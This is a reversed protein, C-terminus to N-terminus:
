ATLACAQYAHPRHNSDVQAWWAVSRTAIFLQSHVFFLSCISDSLLEIFNNILFQQNSITSLHSNMPTFRLLVSVPFLRGLQFDIFLSCHLFIQMPLNFSNSITLLFQQNVFVRFVKRNVTLKFKTSLLKAECFRGKPTPYRESVLQVNYM